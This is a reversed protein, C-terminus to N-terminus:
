PIRVQDQDFWIRWGDGTRVYVMGNCRDLLEGQEITRKTSLDVILVTM